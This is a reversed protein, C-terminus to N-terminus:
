DARVSSLGRKARLDDFIAYTAKGYNGPSVGDEKLYEKVKQFETESLTRRERDFVQVVISRIREDQLAISFDPPMETGEISGEGNM